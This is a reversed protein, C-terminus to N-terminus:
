ERNSKYGPDPQFKYDFIPQNVFTDIKIEEKSEEDKGM